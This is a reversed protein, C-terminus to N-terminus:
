ISPVARCVEKDKCWLIRKDDVVVVLHPNSGSTEGDLYIAPKWQRLSGDEVLVEVPELFEYHAPKPEERAPGGATGILEENGELPICQSYAMGGVVLYTEEDSDLHKCFIHPRWNEDNADRCLVYQGLKFEEM